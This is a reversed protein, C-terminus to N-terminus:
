IQKIVGADDWDPVYAADASSREQVFCRTFGLGAAYDTVSEYEFTTLRRGLKPFEGARYMPTYQSMLSLYVDDGFTSWLWDLLKMSDKRAGPLVMHRVLVGGTMIGRADLVPKGALEVMKEIARSAVAFYDPAGSYQGSLGSDYYKLDPLFVDVSDKLLELAPIHEYGSSNYAVPLSFGEKQAFFLGNIIQPAYHTPTVLDLVAAGAVQQGLFIRGLEEDSVAVGKEQHSIEYNQCFVCRLSCGSFFVTGAGKEGTLVPEEWPHLSVKAVVARDGGGCAGKGHLRDAGCQRPCLHCGALLRGRAKEDLLM